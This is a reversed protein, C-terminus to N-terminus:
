AGGPLESVRGAAVCAPPGCCHHPAPAIFPPRGQLLHLVKGAAPLTCAHSKVAAVQIRHAGGGGRVPPLPLPALHLSPYPAPFSAVGEKETSCCGRLVWGGGPLLGPGWFTSENRRQVAYGRLPLPLLSPSVGLRAELAAAEEGGMTTLHAAAARRRERSRAKPKGEGGRCRPSGRYRRVAQTTLPLSCACYDRELGGTAVSCCCRRAATGGTNVRRGLGRDCAAPHNHAPSAGELTCPPLLRAGPRALAVAGGLRESQSSREPVRSATTM